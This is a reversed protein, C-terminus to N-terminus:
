SESRPASGARRRAFHRFYIEDLITSFAPLADELEQLVAELQGRRGEADLAALEDAECSGLRAVLRRILRLDRQRQQPETFRPLATAAEELRALQFAVARPNTEDLLLLDIVAAPQLHDLYRYRYTMSSDAVELLLQLLSHEEETPTVLTHRLLHLMRLAREIRRGLELFVWNRGRTMSEAALGALAAAHRILGDLYAKTEAADPATRPAPLGEGTAFGLVVRWTDISLRDRVAWATRRVHQLTQSLGEFRSRDFVLSHLEVILLDLDLQQTMETDPMLLHHLLYAAGATPKNDGYDILRTAVARLVRALSEAREANRGLWFLNDMARSPGEAGTRTIEVAEDRPHLLTTQEVQGAALVWTDKSTSGRDINLTHTDDGPAVRTLAGPMVIYGEPTWAVFARLVIARPQIQGDNLVPATGLPTVRQATMTYGRRELHRALRGRETRSLERGRRATSGKSFLPRGDFASLFVLQDIEALAAGVSDSTGLWYTDEGPLLLDEGLLTKALRPEFATLGPSGILGAGLANAMVIGGQRAVEVLGPVGLLSESRFELPDAWDSRVRRFIAHVPQLGPLTRMFIAGDRAVLDDGEVLTMGLYRALFAHEFYAENMPGPTLVVADPESTPALGYLAQRQRQFFGALRHAGSERFLGSLVQGVVLRNELAYGAGSAADARESLVIWRGSADRAVDFAMFHLRVGGPPALGQVPRLYHPDGYLLHPPLRGETLLRQPGYCDGLVAEALRMRQVLGTALQEWDKAAIVLPLLDLEWPRAEGGEDDYVNFTVGNERILRRASQQARTREDANLGAFHQLVPQWHARVQGDAGLMEDWRGPAARYNAILRAPPAMFTDNGM